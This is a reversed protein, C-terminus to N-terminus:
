DPENWIIWHDIRGAYHSVVRRVFAAWLNNPDDHPLYLGRPVGRLPDGDTAWHPTNNLLGVVERGQARERDLIEDPFYQGNWDEPGNPQLQYWWFIVREWGVGALTAQDPADYAEVAGFRPDPPELASAPKGIWIVPILLGLCVLAPLARKM